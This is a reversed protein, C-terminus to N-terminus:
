PRVSRDFLAKWERRQIEVLDAPNERHRRACEDIFAYPDYGVEAIVPHAGVRRFWYKANSFDGERRHMIGHWYAGTADDIGQSIAHSRDLEDIYLWLGAYVADPQGAAVEEVLARLEASASGLPCLEPMARELPLRDFLEKM